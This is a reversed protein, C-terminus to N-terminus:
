NGDYIIRDLKVDKSTCFKWAELRSIEEEFMSDNVLRIRLEGPVTRKVKFFMM